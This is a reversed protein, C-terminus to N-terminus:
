VWEYLYDASASADADGPNGATVGFTVTAKVLKGAEVDREYTAVNNQFTDVIGVTMKIQDVTCNVANSITVRLTRTVNGDNTFQPLAVVAQSAGESTTFSVSNSPPTSPEQVAESPVTININPM